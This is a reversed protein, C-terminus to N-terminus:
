PTDTVDRHPAHPLPIELTALRRAEHVILVLFSVFVAVFTASCFIDIPSASGYATPLVVPGTLLMALIYALLALRIETPGIGWYSIQFVGTAIARIFTYLAAMWYSLLALCATDFRMYPSAGLGLFIFVQSVVDSTHDVFFGYRPRETGRYRALTGDLSDGFWNAILGLGALCLFGSSISTALYSLGCLLAGSVGLITLHDPTLSGPLRAALWILLHRERAALFSHHVRAVSMPQQMQQREHERQVVVKHGDAPPAGTTGSRRVSGCRPANAATIPPCASKRFATGYPLIAM